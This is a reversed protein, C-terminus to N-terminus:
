RITKNKTNFRIGLNHSVFNGALLESDVNDLQYNLRFTKFKLGVSGAYEKNSSYSAGITLWNFQATAGAWFEEKQGHQYYTVFPSLTTKRDKSQYDFGIVGTYLVTSNLRLDADSVYISEDHGYLNDAFGGLYFWKTNLVFGLGYDKFWLDNSTKITSFESKAKLVRGRDLEILSNPGIKDTNKHMRGMSLKLAPEFVINKGLVFKPSYYFNAVINQFGGYNYDQYTISGGVGGQIGSAYSDFYLTSLQSQNSQGMWQNRYDTGIRFNGSSGTFGPNFNLLNKNPIIIEPDRLNVLAIPYGSVKDIKRVLSRLKYQWSKSKREKFGEKTIRQEFKPNHAYAGQHSVNNGNLKSVEDRLVKKGNKGVAYESGYATNNWTDEGDNIGTVNKSATNSNEKKLSGLLTSVGQRSSNVSTIPSLAEEQANANNDGTNAGLYSEGTHARLSYIPTNIKSFPNSFFQISAGSLLLLLLLAAWKGYKQFVSQTQLLQEMGAYEFTEKPIQAHRWAEVDEFYEPNHLMYKQFYDLEEASLNGEKYNFMWKDFNGPIQM